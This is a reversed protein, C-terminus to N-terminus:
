HLTQKLPKGEAGGGVRENERLIFIEFCFLFGQKLPWETSMERISRALMM